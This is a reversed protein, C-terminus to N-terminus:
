ALLWSWINKPVIAIPFSAVRKILGDYSKIFKETWNKNLASPNNYYAIRQQRFMNYFREPMQNIVAIVGNSITSNSTVVNPQLQTAVANAIPIARFPKHWIFDALFNAVTQNSIANFNPIYKLLNTRYWTNVQNNLAANNIIMENSRQCNNPIVGRRKFDDVLRWGQWPTSYLRDIGRYTEGSGPFPCNYGGEHKLIVQISDNLSAM